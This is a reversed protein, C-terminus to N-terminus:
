LSVLIACLGAAATLLWSAVALTNGPIVLWDVFTERHAEAAAEAGAASLAAAVSTAVLWNNGSQVGVTFSLAMTLAGYVYLGKM